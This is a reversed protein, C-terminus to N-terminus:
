RLVEAVLRDKDMGCGVNAAFRKALTVPRRTSYYGPLTLTHRDWNRVLVLTTGADYDGGPLLKAWTKVGVVADQTVVYGSAGWGQDNNYSQISYSGTSKGTPATRLSPAKSM